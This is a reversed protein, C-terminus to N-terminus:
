RTAVRETISRQWAWPAATHAHVTSSGRVTLRSAAAPTSPITEFSGRTRAAVSVAHPAQTEAKQKRDAGEGPRESGHERGAVDGRGDGRRARVRGPRGRGRRRRRGRHRAHEGVADADAAHVHAAERGVRGHRDDAGRELRREDQVGRPLRELRRGGVEARDRVDLVRHRPRPRRRRARGHRERDADVPPLNAGVHGLHGLPEVPRRLVRADDEAPEDGEHRLVDRAAHEVAGRRRGRDHRRQAVVLARREREAELRRPADTVRALKPGTTTM